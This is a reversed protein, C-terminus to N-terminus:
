LQEGIEKLIESFEAALSEETGDSYIINPTRQKYFEDPKGANIRLMAAEETIKDRALIRSLRTKKDATIVIVASCISDIGSEYLTPADLLIKNHGSLAIENELVATIFPFITKNLLETSEADKFARRALRSRILVGKEDLVGEGFADSLAKLCETNETAKRATKDCNIVYYGLKEAERCATTKGAGTPGTLGIIFPLRIVKFGAARILRNYVALGVGSKKPAHVYVSKVGLTDTKRLADFINKAQEAEDDAHGIVVTPRSIKGEDEFFCIAGADKKGNVFRCFDDEEAEVLFVETKPSYHKYMMGPSAAKEGEKLENLVASDMVLDPLIESLEEVTVRGPRLLRPPKVALSVVTSEVGVSCEGSMIVADIRGDLDAVVHEASTPSPSGSLNASPAALPLGSERIVARAVANEPMRVAVTDLGASVGDAIKETRKLVMTLPGPWFREALRKAEEPLEIVINDLDCLEAIHVILPNDQPRGKAIFVKKIAENDYASAALGYVTETPIAVIGGGKLLKAAAAIGLKDDKLKLTKM